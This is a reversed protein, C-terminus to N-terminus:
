ISSLYFVDNVDRRKFAAPVSEREAGIATVKAIKRGKLSMLVYISLSLAILSIGFSIFFFTGPVTESTLQFLNFFQIKFSQFPIKM